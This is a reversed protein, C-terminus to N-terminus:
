RERRSSPRPSRACTLASSDQAAAQSHRAAGADASTKLPRIANELTRESGCALLKSMKLMFGSPVPTRRSVVL